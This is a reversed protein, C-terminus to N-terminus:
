NGSKEEKRDGKRDAAAAAAACWAAADAMVHFHVRCSRHFLLSRFYPAMKEVTAYGGGCFSVLLHVTEEYWVERRQAVAVAPAVAAAAPCEKNSFGGCRQKNLSWGYGAGICAACDTHRAFDAAQQALGASACACALAALLQAHM